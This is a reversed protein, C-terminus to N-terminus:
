NEPGRPVQLGCPGPLVNAKKHLELAAKKQIYRGLKFQKLKPHGDALAQGVALARGM